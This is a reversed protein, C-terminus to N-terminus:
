ADASGGDITRREVIMMTASLAFVDSNVQTSASHRLPSQDADADVCAAAALGPSCSPPSVPRFLSGPLTLALSSRQLSISCARPTGAASPITGAGVVFPPTVTHM